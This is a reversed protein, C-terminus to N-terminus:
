SFKTGAVMFKGILTFGEKNLINIMCVTQRNVPLFYIKLSIIYLAVYLCLVKLIHDFHGRGLAEPTM